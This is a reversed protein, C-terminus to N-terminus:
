KKLSDIVEFYSLKLTESFPNQKHYIMTTYHSTEEDIEIISSLKEFADSFEKNDFWYNFKRFRALERNDSTDCLYIISNEINRFFFELICIITEKVYDDNPAFLNNTNEISLSFINSIVGEGVTGNLLYDSDTFTLRYEVNHNTSFIYIQSSLDAFVKYQCKLNLEKQM